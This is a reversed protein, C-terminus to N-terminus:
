GSNMIDSISSKSRETIRSVSSVSMGAKAFMKIWGREEEGIKHETHDCHLRLNLRFALEDENLKRNQIDRVSRGILNLTESLECYYTPVVYFFNITGMIHQGVDDPVNCDRLVQSIDMAGMKMYKGKTEEPNDRYTAETLMADFADEDLDPVHHGKGWYTYSPSAEKHEEEERIKEKKGAEKEKKM